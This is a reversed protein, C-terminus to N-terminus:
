LFSYLNMNDTCFNLKLSYYSQNYHSRLENNFFENNSLNNEANEVLRGNMKDLRVTYFLTIKM